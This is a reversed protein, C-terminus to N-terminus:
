RSLRSVLATVQEAEVFPAFSSLYFIFLFFSFFISLLFLYLFPFVAYIVLFVFLLLLLDFCPGHFFFFLFSSLSQFGRSIQRRAILFLSFNSFCMCVTVIFTSDTIPLILIYCSFYKVIGFPDLTRVSITSHPSM